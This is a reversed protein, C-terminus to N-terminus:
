TAPGGQIDTNSGSPIPPPSRVASRMKGSYGARRRKAGTVQDARYMFIHLAPLPGRCRPQLAGPIRCRVSEIRDCGRGRCPTSPHDGGFAVVRARASRCAFAIRAERALDAESWCSLRRRSEPDGHGTRDAIRARATGATGAIGAPGRAAAASPLSDRRPCTLARLRRYALPPNRRPRAFPSVIDM